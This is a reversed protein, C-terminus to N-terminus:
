QAAGIRYRYDRGQITATAVTWLRRTEGARKLRPMLSDACLCAHGPQVGEMGERPDV